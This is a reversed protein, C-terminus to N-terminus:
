PVTGPLAPFLYVSTRSSDDDSRRVSARAAYVRDGIKPLQQGTTLAPPACVEKAQSDEALCLSSGDFSVARVEATLFSVQATDDRSAGAAVGVVVGAAFAVVLLGVPLRRSM